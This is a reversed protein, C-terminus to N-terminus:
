QPRKERRFYTYVKEDWGWLYVCGGRAGWFMGSHEVGNACSTPCGGRGVLLFWFSFSDLLSISHVSM